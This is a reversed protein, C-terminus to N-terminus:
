NPRTRRRSSMSMASRTAKDQYAVLDGARREVLERLSPDDIGDVAYPELEYAISAGAATEVAESRADV